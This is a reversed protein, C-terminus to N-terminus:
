KMKTVEDMLKRWNLMNQIEEKSATAPNFKSPDIDIYLKRHLEPDFKPNFSNTQIDSQSRWKDLLNKLRAA